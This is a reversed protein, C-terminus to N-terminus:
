CIKIHFVKEWVRYTPINLPRKMHLPYVHKHIKTGFVGSRHLGPRTFPKTTICKDANSSDIMVKGNVREWYSVWHVKMQLRPRKIMSQTLDDM